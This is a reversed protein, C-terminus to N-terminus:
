GGRIMGHALRVDTALERVGTCFPFYCSTNKKGKTPLIWLGQLSLPHHQDEDM